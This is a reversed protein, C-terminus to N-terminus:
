FVVPCFKRPNDGVLLNLIKLFLDLKGNKRCSFETFNLRPRFALCLGEEAFMGCVLNNGVNQMKVFSASIIGNRLVASYEAFSFM